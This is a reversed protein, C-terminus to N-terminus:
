VEFPSIERVCRLEGLPLFERRPRLTNYSFRTGFQPTGPPLPAGVLKELPFPRPVRPEGYGELGILIEVLACAM